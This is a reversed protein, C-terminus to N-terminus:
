KFHNVYPTPNKIVNEIAENIQEEKLKPIFFLNICNKVKKDNEDLLFVDLSSKFNQESTNILIDDSVTVKILYNQGNFDFKKKTVQKSMGINM